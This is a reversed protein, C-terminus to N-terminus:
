GGFAGGPLVDDAGGAVEAVDLAVVGGEVLLAGFEEGFLAEVREGGGGADLRDQAEGFQEDLDFGDGHEADGFHFVLRTGATPTNCAFGTVCFQSQKKM